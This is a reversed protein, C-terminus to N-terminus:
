RIATFGREEGVAHVLLPIYGSPVFTFLGSSLRSMSHQARGPLMISDKVSSPVSGPGLLYQFLFYWKEGVVGM